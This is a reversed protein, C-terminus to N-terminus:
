RDFNAMVIKNNFIRQVAQFINDNHDTRSINVIVEQRKMTNKLNQIKRFTLLNFM